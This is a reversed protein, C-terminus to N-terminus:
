FIDPSPYFLLAKATQVIVGLRPLTTFTTYRRFDHWRKIMSVKKPHIVARPYRHCHHKRVKVQNHFINLKKQQEMCKTRIARKARYRKMLKQRAPDTNKQYYDAWGVLMYGTVNKPRWPDQVITDIIKPSCRFVHIFQKKTNKNKSWTASSVFVDIM